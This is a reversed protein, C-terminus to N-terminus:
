VRPHQYRCPKATHRRAETQTEGWLPVGAGQGSEEKGPGVPTGLRTLM